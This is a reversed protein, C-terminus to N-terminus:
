SGGGLAIALGLLTGILVIGAIWGWMPNPRKGLFGRGGYNKRVKKVEDYGIEIERRLDVENISFRDQGISSITGYSESGDKFIVTVKQLVGIKGVDSKIKEVQPDVSQPLVLGAVLLIALHINM